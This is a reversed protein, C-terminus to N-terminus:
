ATRTHPALKALPAAQAADGGHAMYREGLEGALLEELAVRPTLGDVHKIRNDRIVLLTTHVLVAFPVDKIVYANLRRRAPQDSRSSLQALRLLHSPGSM